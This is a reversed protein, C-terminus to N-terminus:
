QRKSKVKGLKLKRRMMGALGVVGTGLLGLTGPEPITQVYIKGGALRCTGTCGPTLDIVFIGFGGGPPAGGHSPLLSADIVVDDGAKTITGGVLGDQFEITGLNPYRVTVIGGTFTCTGTTGQCGSSLPGATIAIGVAESGTGDMSFSPRTGRDWGGSANVSNTMGSSFKEIIFPGPYDFHGHQKGFDISNAFTAVPLAMGLLTLLM